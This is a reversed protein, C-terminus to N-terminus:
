SLGINRLSAALIIHPPNAWLYPSSIILYETSIYIKHSNIIDKSNTNPKGDLYILTNTNICYTPKDLIFTLKFFIILLICISLTIILVKRM